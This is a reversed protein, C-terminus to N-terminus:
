ASNTVPEAPRRPRRRRIRYLTLLVAAAVTGGIAWPLREIPGDASAVPPVASLLTRAAGSSVRGTLIISTGPQGAAVQDLPVDVVVTGNTDARVERWPESGIRVRVPSRGRFGVGIVRLRTNGDTWAVTLDKGVTLPHAQKKAAGTPIFYILASLVAAVAGVVLLDRPTLLVGRLRRVDGLM